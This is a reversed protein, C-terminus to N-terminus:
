SQERMESGWSKDLYDRLQQFSRGRHSIVDKEKATMEAYTKGNGQTPEFIPDWGFSGSGRPPVIKGNTRGDFVVPDHGPGPSFAVVTQAYGTKDDFAAIMKNLGELGCSEMFWRVYPGPLGNLANFCLSTDETIVAGGIKESAALCKDRAIDIPKGQLEKLDDLRQNTLQYGKNNNSTDNVEGGANSKSSELIRKVEELKKASGTVFTITTTPANKRNDADSVKQKKRPPPEVPDGFKIRVSELLDAVDPDPIVLDYCSVVKAHSSSHLCAQDFLFNMAQGMQERREKDYSWVLELSRWAPEAHFLLYQNDPNQKYSYAGLTVSCALRCAILLRLHEKELNSLPYVSNYGRLVGAAASLSRNSKGYNSIMAYAMGVSIDLVRWSINYFWFFFLIYYSVHKFIKTM